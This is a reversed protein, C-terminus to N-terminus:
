ATLTRPETSRGHTAPRRRQRRRGMAVDPLPAVPQPGARRARRHPHVGDGDPRGHRHGVGVHRPREALVPLGARRGPPRAHLRLATAGGGRLAGLTSIFAGICTAVVGIWVTRTIASAPPRREPALLREALRTYRYCWVTSFLLVLLSGFAVYERMDIAGVSTASTTSFLVYLLLSIPLAAQAIQLWFGLWGLRSLSEALSLLGAAAREDSRPTPM